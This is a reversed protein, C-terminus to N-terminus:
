QAAASKTVEVTAPHAALFSRLSQLFLPSSFATLHNAGPIVVIKLNPMMGDLHDVGAKLPDVEGILALTPVKNARIKAEAVQPLGGRAVAALALPDNGMSLFMKNTAEIQQPTMPPQGVPTLAVILPGLGKGQELSDALMKLMGSQQESEQPTNWGAGGMTATLCREPHETVLWSTIFGGLSYGVIHAKQIKLHDLLRIADDAMQNGYAAPDHPKESQGHGRNDIAIVQYDTALGKTVGPLVWNVAANAAYGHILLVPEGKGEVTYHIRVGDSDFFFDEAHLVSVVLLALWPAVRVLKRIM